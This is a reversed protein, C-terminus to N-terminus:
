HHVLDMTYPHVTQWFYKRSVGKSETVACRRGEMNRECEGTLMQHRRDESSQIVEMISIMNFSAHRWKGAGMAEWDPQKEDSLHINRCRVSLVNM